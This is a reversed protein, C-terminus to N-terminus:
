DNGNYGEIVLTCEGKISKLEQLLHSVTGCHVTEHRKTLERCLAIKRDGVINIIDTLLQKVRHPSEFLITTRPELRLRELAKKRRGPKKPLFGEFVFNHVPLGSAALSATISSPGPVSYVPINHEHAARVLPFGPDSLVPTGANSILAISKGEQLLSLLLPLRKQENHEYYSLTNTTIDYAKLLIKAKRTDECAILDASRLTEIARLTIDKLNGIPTAVVFLPM